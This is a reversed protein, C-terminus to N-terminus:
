LNNEKKATVGRSVYRREKEQYSNSSAKNTLVIKQREVRKCGEKMRAEESKSTTVMSSNTSGRKRPRQDGIGETCKRKQSSPQATLGHTQETCAINAVEIPMTNRTRRKPGQSVTEQKRAISPEHPLVSTHRRIRICCKISRGEENIRTKKLGPNGNERDIKRSQKIGAEKRKRKQNPQQEM